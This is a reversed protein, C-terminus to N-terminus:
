QNAEVKHVRRWEGNPMVVYDRDSGKGISNPERLLGADIADRRADVRRARHRRCREMWRELSRPKPRESEIPVPKDGDHIM